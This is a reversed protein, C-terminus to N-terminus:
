YYIFLPGTDGILGEGPLSVKKRASIQSKMRTAWLYYEGLSMSYFACGGGAAILM